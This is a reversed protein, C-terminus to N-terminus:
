FFSEPVDFGPISAVPIYDPNPCRVLSLRPLFGAKHSKGITCFSGTKVRETKFRYRPRFELKGQYMDPLIFSFSAYGYRNTCPSFSRHGDIRKDWKEEIELYPV